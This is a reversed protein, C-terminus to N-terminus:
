ESQSAVPAECQCVHGRRLARQLPVRSHCSECELEVSLRVDVDTPAEIEGKNVLSGVAERIKEEARDRAIDIADQEWDTGEPKEYEAGLCETIHTRVVGYSVFDARLREVDVGERVLMNEVEAASPGDARLREYKSEAEEGLTTLGVEDMERRLLTVNLWKALQRYGKRQSGEGRWQSLLRDNYSEMGREALVRCVKCGYEDDM